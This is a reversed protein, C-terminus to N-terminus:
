FAFSLSIETHVSEESADGGMNEGKNKHATLSMGGMTYSASVGSVEQDLTQGDIDVESEGYSIAFNENVAFAIGFQKNESDATAGSNAAQLDINTVQYGVTVPGYAYTVAITDEDNTNSANSAGAGVEAVGAAITLGDIPKAVIHVSKDSSGIADAGPNGDDTNAESAGRSYGLVVDVMDTSYTYNFGNGGMDVEYTNGTQTTTTSSGVGNSIEEEATPMIDDIKAIGIQSSGQGYMLTGMSGMDVTISSTSENGDTTRFGQYLSVTFGNDLEGSGSLAVGHQMGWRNGDTGTDENGTKGTYGLKAGGSVTLEGASAATFSVLSGALATLGLKKLNNM